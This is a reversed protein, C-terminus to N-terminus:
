TVSGATRGLSISRSGSRGPYRFNADVGDNIRTFTGVSVKRCYLTTAVTHKGGLESIANCWECAMPRLDFFRINSKKCTAFSRHLLSLHPELFCYVPVCPHM